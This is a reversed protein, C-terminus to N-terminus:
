AEPGEEAAKRERPDLPPDDPAADLKEKLARLGFFTAIISALIINYDTHTNPVNFGDIPFDNRYIDALWQALNFGMHLMIAALLSGTAIRVAGYLIGMLLSVLILSLLTSPGGPVIRLLAFLLAAFFVGRIRGMHGVLGQQIVGRFLWEEMVPALGVFVIFRQIEVYQSTEFIPSPTDAADPDIPAPPAFDRIINDLESMLFISPLLLALVWVFEPDFGRLGLREERPEVIRVTALIAISGFGIVQGVGIAGFDLGAGFMSVVTATAFLAGVTLGIASMPGPYHELHETQRPNRPQFRSEGDNMPNM